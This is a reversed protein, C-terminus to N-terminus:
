SIVPESPVYGLAGANEALNWVFTQEEPSRLGYVFVNWGVKNTKQCDFGESQLFTLMSDLGLIERDEEKRDKLETMLYM